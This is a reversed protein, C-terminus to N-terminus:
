LTFGYGAMKNLVAEKQELPYCTNMRIMCDPSPIAKLVHEFFREGEFPLAMVKKGAQAIKGYLETWDATYANGDGPVWQVGKISEIRLLSDLHIIEGVGDLHYFANSIRSASDALEPAVFTDFMGPSIMYCFDSQLMYNPEEDFMGAWCTYGPAYPRIIENISDYFFFWIGALERVCRSVEEPHLYLDELLGEASRFTALIDLIGGLDAMGMIVSSGWKKMGARYVDTIRRFWINEPDFAFHLEEVPLPKDVSFWVTEPTCAVKSGLFAAAVGAGYCEMHVQPFADGAYEICSLDYDFRDIIQEPTISFDGANAFCISEHAPKIRQPDKGMFFLPLIPRGLENKWWKRYADKIAYWQKDSFHPM